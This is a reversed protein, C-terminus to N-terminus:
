STLLKTCKPLEWMENEKTRMWVLRGRWLIEEDVRELEKERNESYETEYILNYVVKRVIELMDEETKANKIEEETKGVRWGKKIRPIGDSTDGILIQLYFNQLAELPTVFFINGTVLNGHWGPINNLDKDISWIICKHEEPLFVGKNLEYHKIGCADDAEQGYIMEANWRKQMFTRLENYYIPRRGISEHGLQEKCDYPHPNGCNEKCKVRNEKYYKYIDFRFNDKGGITLYGYISNIKECESLGLCKKVMSNINFYAHHVPESTIEGTEKDTSQIAFGCRYTLIDMDIIVNDFKM